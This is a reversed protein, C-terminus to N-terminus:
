TSARLGRRRDAVDIVSILHNLTFIHGHTRTFETTAHLFGDVSKRYEVSLLFVLM